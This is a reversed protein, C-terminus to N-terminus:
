NQVMPSIAVVKNLYFALFKSLNLSVKPTDKALRCLGPISQPNLLVQTIVKVKDVQGSEGNVLESFNLPMDQDCVDSIVKVAFWPLNNESAVGAISSAEMDV